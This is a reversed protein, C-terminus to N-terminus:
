RRDDAKAAAVTVLARLRLFSREGIGQVKMLEEVKKFGGNKTRYDIIRQAVRAGIGPLAELQAATATNLNLAPAAAAAKAPEQAPAAAAPATFLLLALVARAFTSTM